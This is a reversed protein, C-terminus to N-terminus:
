NKNNKKNIIGRIYSIVIRLEKIEERLKRIEEELEKLHNSVLKYLILIIIGALGYNLLAAEIMM